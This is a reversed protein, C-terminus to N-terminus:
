IDPDLDACEPERHVIGKDLTFEGGMKKIRDRVTREAMGLYAAIDAVSAGDGDFNVAFFTTRMRPSLAWRKM